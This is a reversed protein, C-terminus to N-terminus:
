FTKLVPSLAETTKSNTLHTKNQKFFKKLSVSLNCNSGDANSGGSSSTTTISATNSSNQADDSTLSKFSNCSAEGYSSGSQNMNLPTLFQTESKLAPADEYVSVSSSSAVDSKGSKYSDFQSSGKSWNTENQALWKSDEDM